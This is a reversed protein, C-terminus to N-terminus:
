KRSGSVRDRPAAPSRRSPSAAPASRPRATARSGPSRRSCRRRPGTGSRRSRGAAPERDLRVAGVRAVPHQGRHEHEAREAPREVRQDRRQELHAEARALDQGAQHQDIDGLQQEVIQHAPRPAIRLAEVERGGGFEVGDGRHRGQDLAAPQMEARDDRQQHDDAGVMTSPRVSFPKSILSTPAAGRAARKAPKLSLVSVTTVNRIEPASAPSAPMM